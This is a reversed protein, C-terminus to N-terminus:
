LLDDFSGSSGSKLRIGVQPFAATVCTLEHATTRWRGHIHTAITV